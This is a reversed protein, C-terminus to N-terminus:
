KPINDELSISLVEDTENTDLISQVYPNVVAAVIKESHSTKPTLSCKAETKSENIKSSEGESICLIDESQKESHSHQVIPETKIIPSEATCSLGLSSDANSTDTNESHSELDNNISESITGNKISNQRQIQEFNMQEKPLCAMELIESRSENADSEMKICIEQEVNQVQSTHLQTDQPQAETTVSLVKNSELNEIDRRANLLDDIKQSELDDTANRIMNEIIEDISLEKVNSSSTLYPEISTIANSITENRVTVDLGKEMIVASIIDKLMSSTSEVVTIESSDDINEKIESFSAIQQDKCKEDIDSNTLGNCAIENIELKKMQNICEMDDTQNLVTKKDNILQYEHSMTKQIEMDVTNNETNNEAINEDDTEIIEIVEPINECESLLGIVNTGNLYLRVHMPDDEDLIEFQFMTAGEAALEKFKDCAKESWEINNPKELACLKSLIPINVIDEPLVRLEETIASNGYDMYLVETGEECHGVIKARYWYGDEPYRAACVMGVDLNNLALFSEADRLRDSMVELESISSEAQIWFENPCNIHSVMVNPSNEEGLPPLREEIVPLNQECMNGLIDAVNQGDLTLKVLSTEQDKLVDLLFITAGDAALKVFKERAQESWEVVQLPLELCCKRSLPPISALDEPITRIETSIASNGYDIYIVQTGNDDHSVIRARYWQEDEPYKAVCLLGEKREEIKPFMDAVMFRDAMVELDAVSKEEQVWFESPSNIHCVFASHPDLELDVIENVLEQETNIIIAHKEEVLTESVSNNDIFLEVRKPMTDAIILAQLSEVSTVINQFRECTSESWDETDVPIVDLRCKFAFAELNKWDDPIQRINSAKNDIVDTNGYDIFRVTTIDEDADLVEARYWLDDITYVAVCLTGEEPIGDITLFNSVELQLQQQKENLATMKDMYQLWFQSPSDVHSVCVDFRGPTIEHIQSALQPALEFTQEIEVLNLSRFKDSLKEGNEILDVIWKKYVNYFTAVFDKSMLHTQLIDKQEAETGTLSVSLSVNIALQHPEYFQPELIMLSDLAVEESNGYDIYNIYATTETLSVIKGRYWQGDDSYKTACLLHIEPKLNQGSSAYYQQLDRALKTELDVDLYRQLWINTPHDTYSVFVNHTSSLIPMARVPSIKEETNIIGNGFLDYLKVILRSNNVEEVYILVETGELEKLQKDANPSATVNQLSCELAQNQMAALEGPLALANDLIEDYMGTDILKVDFGISRTCNIVVARRWTGNTNVLCGAALCLERTSLRPMVKTDKDAMYQDVINECKIASPLQVYFQTTSEVNSIRMKLTQGGLLSIDVREVDNFEKEKIDSTESVTEIKTSAALNQQILMSSVDQGNRNLSIIYLDDSFSHFTCEYKDANFCADLANNDVESWNSNNNPGIDKLSCLVALKPLQMFKKEVPYINRRDVSACNGFDIYRVVYADMLTDINVVEARYFARDESFIAIVASGIELKHTVPKSNNTYTKQIESMMTKFETEKSLLQCYLKNPNIFWTVVIDHKSEPEYLTTQWKSDPPAYETVMRNKTVTNFAKKNTATQKAKTLDAITCFEENIYKINSVDDVVERLLVKYMKNEELVFEAQLSKGDTKELFITHQEEENGTNTLGLLKCRVAQMPLKLFEELIVKINIFNVLETNGYDVFEVTASSEEVSKIVARYWKLDESYQAICYTGSQIESAQMTDGGNEYIAAIRDMVSNLELCEPSLQVFFDLPSNLFVVECNKVSGLTIDIKMLQSKKSAIINDQLGNNSNNREWSECETTQNYMVDSTNDEKRFKNNSDDGNFKDNRYNAKYSPKKDNWNSTQWRDSAGGNRNGRRNDNFDNRKFGGKGRRDNDKSSTDSDKDSNKDSNYRNYKRENGSFRNGNDRPTGRNFSDKNFSNGDGEDYKNYSKERDFRNNTSKDKIFRDNQSSDRYSYTGNRERRNDYQKEQSSEDRWNNSKNDQFPKANQNRNWSDLNSRKNYKDKDESQFENKVSHQVENRSSTSNETKDCFLNNLLQPHVSRMTDFEFLDVLLGNPQAAVVKMYFRKELTLREFHNSVEQDLSLVEYGNLACQIAQAPLKTVLDDHIVRLSIAPLVEENGYDVYVVKVKDGVIGLIQARYWQSDYLAACPQGAKLQAINLTSATKAYQTLGAMISELSKVGSDLQVFFKKCSEVYSVYVVEQFDKTLRRLQPYSYTIPVMAAPEPFAKKLLDKVNVGNDYLDGYQILPPGEPPRIHLILLRRYVLEKFYEKMEQTIILEKLGSLTFRISLVKPNIYEPPLQFIDTYPLVETHGFDVYYLKCKREMVSMVVARCLVREGGPDKYRGLCVSGPLPPEQLPKKPHNNIETMLCTLVDRASEIQISFKQPGDEVHSIFVDHRSGVELVRSKFVLAEQVPPPPHQLIPQAIHKPQNVNPSFTKHYIGQVNANHNPNQMMPMAAFNNVNGKNQQQYPIQQLMRSQPTHKPRFMDQLTAPLAMREKVLLESFDENNYWLKILCHNNMMQVLARYDNYCLSKKISEITRNDWAGNAPLVNLLTFETAMAPYAQLPEAGRINDLLHIDNLSLTQINGYDIFQVVIMGDPRVSVIKARYYGETQFRACCLSGVMLRNTKSPCGYGQNFQEILPFIYQEIAIGAQRDVQAWIKLYIDDAEVHTVYIVLESTSQQSMNAREPLM